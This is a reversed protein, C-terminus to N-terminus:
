ALYNPVSIVQAGDANLSVAFPLTANVTAIGGSIAFTMDVGTPLARNPTALYTDEAVNLDVCAALFAEAISNINRDALSTGTLVVSDGPTHDTPVFKVTGDSDLVATSGAVFGQITLIGAGFTMSVRNIPTTLAAEAQILVRALEAVLAPKSASKITYATM